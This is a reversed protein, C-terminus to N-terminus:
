GPPPEAGRLSPAPPLDPRRGGAREGELGLQELRALHARLEAQRPHDGPLRAAYREVRSRIQLAFHPTAAGVMQALEEDSPVGYDHQFVPV